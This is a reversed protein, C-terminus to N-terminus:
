LFLKPNEINFDNKSIQFIEYYIFDVQFLLTYANQTNQALDSM